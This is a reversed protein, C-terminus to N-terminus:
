LDLSEDWDVEQEEYCEADPDLDSRGEVPIGIDKICALCTDLYEGTTGHKATSEWDNLNKNCCVCRM